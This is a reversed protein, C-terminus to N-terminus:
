HRATVRGGINKWIKTASENGDIVKSLLGGTKADGVLSVVDSATNVVDDVGGVVNRVSNTVNDINRTTREIKNSTNDYLTAYRDAESKAKRTNESTLANEVAWKNIQATQIQSKLSEQARNSRSKEALENRAQSETQRNHFANEALNLKAIDENAVNSRHTEAERARNARGTERNKWYEIQITTM